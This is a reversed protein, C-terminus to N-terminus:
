GCIRRLLWELPGRKGRSRLQRSIIALLAFYGVGAALAWGERAPRWGAAYLPLVGLYIHGMYWTFATQGTAALAELIARGPFRRAAMLCVGIILLAFGGASCLFILQPPMSETGFLAQLDQQMGPDAAVSPQALAGRLLLYSACHALAWLAAGGVALRRQIRAHGLELRGLAMGAILVGAWPFVSRFGDVLLNRILGAPTWLGNYTLTAWDWNEGYDFALLWVMFALMFGAALALLVRASLRTLPATFLFVVGYIRLIDGPWLILNLFGAALLFLGRKITTRKLAAAERHRALLTIGAGALLMFLATPRGDLLTLSHFEATGSQTALLFHVLVMGFIAIGRALDLGLLRSPRESSLEM